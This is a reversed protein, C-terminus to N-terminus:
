RHIAETWNLIVTLPAATTSKQPTVTVLFRQGDRTVAYVQNRALTWANAHFLARPMGAEFSTRSRDPRVNDDWGTGPLVIGPRGSEM